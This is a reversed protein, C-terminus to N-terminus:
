SEGGSSVYADFHEAPDFAPHAHLETWAADATNQLRSAAASSNVDGRFWRRFAADAQRQKAWADKVLQDIEAAM